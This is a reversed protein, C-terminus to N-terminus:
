PSKSDELQQKRAMRDAYYGALDDLRRPHRRRDVRVPVSQQRREKNRRRESTPKMPSLVLKATEPLKMLILLVLIAVIGWIVYTM